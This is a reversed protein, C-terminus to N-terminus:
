VTVIKCVNTAGVTEMQDGYTLICQDGNKLLGSEKLAAIVSKTLEGAKCETSDFKLPIVGRYLAMKKLTKSHRSM